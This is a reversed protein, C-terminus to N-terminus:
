LCGKYEDLIQFSNENEFSGSGTYNFTIVDGSCANFTVSEFTNATCACQDVEEDNVVVTGNVLIDISSGGNWGDGYSDYM